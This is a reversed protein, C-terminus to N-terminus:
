GFRAWASRAAKGMIGPAISDVSITVYSANVATVGSITAGAPPVGAFAFWSPSPVGTAPVCVM